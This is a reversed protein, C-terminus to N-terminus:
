NLYRQQLHAIYPATSLPKGTAQVVLDESSLLSAQSHIRERSWNSWPSFDGQGLAPLLGPHEALAAEFFQAAKIAGLLYTPFYGVLGMSWHIDQLCGEAANGPRIGLFSVMKDDWADPIDTIALNGSLIEREIEYRLLIHLPYTVEDAKIRIFGPEVQRYHAMLNENSWAHGSVGFEARLIPTFWNLFQESRCAMMELGLSQSEHTSGGRYRGVPQFAYENKPLNLEYMGHGCEHFAGMLTFLPNSTDYHTTIRPDGPVGAMAFPHETHDMRGDGPWGMSPLVRRILAEIKDQPVSGLPIPNRDKQRDQIGQVFTPLFDSIEGFLRDVMESSTGPDHQDLLVDYPTMNLSEAKTNAIEIQLKLVETLYPAFSAFDANAKAELWANGAENQARSFSALLSGEVAQAHLLLRKMESLNAQQWQDLENHEQAAEMVTDVLAPDTQKQHIVETLVAMQEGRSASAQAPMMTKSDWGLISNISQLKHIDGFLRTAQRYKEV